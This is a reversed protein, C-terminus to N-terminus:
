HLSKLTHRNTSSCILAACTCTDRFSKRRVYALWVSYEGAPAETQRASITAAPTLYHQIATNTHHCNLLNCQLDFHAPLIVDVLLKQGRATHRFGGDGSVVSMYPSFRFSEIHTSLISGTRGVKASGKGNESAVAWCFRFLKYRRTPASTHWPSLPKTAVRLVHAGASPGRSPFASINNIAEWKWWFVSNKSPLFTAFRSFLRSRFCFPRGTFNFHSTYTRPLNIATPAKDGSLVVRGRSTRRKQAAISRNIQSIRSFGKHARIAITM